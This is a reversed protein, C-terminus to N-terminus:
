LSSKYGFCSAVLIFNLFAYLIQKGYATQKQSDEPKSKLIKKGVSMLAIAMIGM